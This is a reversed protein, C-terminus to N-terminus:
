YSLSELILKAQQVEPKNFWENAEVESLSLGNYGDTDSTSFLVHTNEGSYETLKGNNKGIFMDYGMTRMSKVLGNNDQVALFPDYKKGDSTMTGSIVFLGTANNIPMKNILTFLPCAGETGLTKMNCAGGFGDLASVWSIKVERSPSLLGIQDSINPNNSKISPEVIKWNPPYKFTAKEVSSNYTKWNSADLESSKDTFKFTSLIQDYIQTYGNAKATSSLSIILSGINKYPVITDSSCQPACQNTEYYIGGVNDIAVKKWGTIFETGQETKNGQEYKDITKNLNTIISIKPANMLSMDSGNIEVEPPYLTVVDTYKKIQWDVPYKFVFGDGEYTEWNATPDLKGQEEATLIRTFTKGNAACQEPYSEMIPYGAAVCEEYTTIATQKTQNENKILYAILGFALITIIAVFGFIFIKLFPIKRKPKIPKNEPSQTQNLDQTSQAQNQSISTSNEEEM